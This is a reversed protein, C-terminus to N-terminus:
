RVKGVREGGNPLVTEVKKRSEEMKKNKRRKPPQDKGLLGWIVVGAACLLSLGATLWESRVGLGLAVLFHAVKGDTAIMHGATWGLVAAGALIIWPFRDMLLMLLQSGFVVLPISVILGFWLLAAKGHAAGAIAVINDLSMLADAVLITKIAAWLREPAEVEIEEKETQELLKVAIWLLLLGGLAKVFPVMLLYVMISALLVRLVIAGATGLIIGKKRLNIPLNRCALAILLANDGSLVIDILIISVVALWFGPQTLDYLTVGGIHAM